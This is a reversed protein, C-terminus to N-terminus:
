APFTSAIWDAFEVAPLPGPPRKPLPHSSVVVGHYAPDPIPAGLSGRVQDILLPGGETSASVGSATKSVRPREEPSIWWDAAFWRDIASVLVIEGSRPHNLGLADRQGLAAVQAIGEGRPGAFVSALPAVQAPDNIYIHCIQHDALAFAASAAPDIELGGGEAEILKLLGLERLLRNPFLAGSVPTTVSETAAVVQTERPLSSLFAGLCAELERVARGAERGDPGYRRSVQGLYPIRIIALDPLESQITAGATKLIWGITERRPPELGPLRAPAPGFRRTLEIALERPQTEPTGDSASWAAFDVSAGRTNPAFWLMTRAEPRASKLREWLKASDVESDALPRKAVKGLRRDYYTDGVIGHEAPTKGTMLTAFSSAATGPFAPIMEVSEGRRALIELTALGGPTVDKIRLQPISLIVLRDVM